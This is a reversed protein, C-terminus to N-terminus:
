HGLNKVEIEAIEVAQERYGVCFGFRAQDAALDMAAIGEMTYKQWQATPMVFNALVTRYPKALQGLEVKLAGAGGETVRAWLTVVIRDGARYGQELGNIFSHAMWGEAPKTAVVLRLAQGSREQAPILSETCGNAKAQAFGAVPNTLLLTEAGVLPQGAMLALVVGLIPLNCTLKRSAGPLTTM